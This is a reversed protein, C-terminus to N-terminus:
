AALRCSEERLKLAFWRQDGCAGAHDLGSRSM